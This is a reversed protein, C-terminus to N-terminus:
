KAKPSGKAFSAVKANTQALEKLKRTTTDVGGEGLGLPDLALQEVNIAGEKTSVLFVSGLHGQGRGMDYRTGAIVARFNRPTCSWPITRGDKLHFEGSISPVGGYHRRVESVAAAGDIWVVFTLFTSPTCIVGTNDGISFKALGTIAMFKPDTDALAELRSTVSDLGGRLGLDEASLQEVKRPDDRSSILFVSGSALDYQEGAITVRGKTGQRPDCSWTIEAFEGALPPDGGKSLSGGAARDVWIVLPTNNVECAVGSTEYISLTAAFGIGSHTRVYVWGLVVLLGLALLGLALLWRWRQRM